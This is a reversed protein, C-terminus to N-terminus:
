KNEDIIFPLLINQLIHRDGFSPERRSRRWFGDGQRILRVGLCGFDEPDRSNPSLENM